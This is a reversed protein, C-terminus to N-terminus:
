TTHGRWWDNLIVAVVGALLLDEERTPVAGTKELRLDNEPDNRGRLRLVPVGRLEVRRVPRLPDGRSIRAVRQGSANAIDYAGHLIVDWVGTPNSLRGLPEGDSGLLAHGPTASLHGCLDLGPLYPDKLDRLPRKERRLSEFFRYRDPTTDEILFRVRRLSENEYVTVRRPSAGRKHACCVQRGTGDTARLLVPGRDLALDMPYAPQGDRM